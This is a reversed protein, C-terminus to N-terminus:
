ITPFTLLLKLHCRRQFYAVSKSGLIWTYEQPTDRGFNNFYNHFKFNQINFVTQRLAFLHSIQSDPVSTVYTHHEKSRRTNLNMKSDNPARTEFFPQLEFVAPGLAFHLSIQSGPPTTISIYPLKVKYPEIDNQPWCACKDWFSMNRFFPQGYLSITHFKPIMSVPLVYIAYMQGQVQKLDNPPWETCKEWLLRYSWFLQSYLSFSEFKPSPSM